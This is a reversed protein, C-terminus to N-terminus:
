NICSTSPRFAYSQDLTSGSATLSVRLAATSSSTSYRISFISGQSSVALIVPTSMGNPKSIGAIGVPTGVPAGVEDEPTGEDAEPMVPEELILEEESM